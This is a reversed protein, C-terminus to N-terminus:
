FNLNKALFNFRKFFKQDFEQSDGFDEEESLFLLQNSDPVFAM